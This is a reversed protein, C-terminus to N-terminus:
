NSKKCNTKLKQVMRILKEDKELQIETEMMKGNV